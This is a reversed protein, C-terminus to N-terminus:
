SPLIFTLNTVSRQAPMESQAPIFHGALSHGLSRVFVGGDLLFVCLCDILDGKYTNVPKLYLITDLFINHLFFMHNDTHVLAHPM